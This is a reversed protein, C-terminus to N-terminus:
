FLVYSNLKRNRYDKINLWVSFSLALVLGSVTIIDSQQATLEIQIVRQILYQTYSAPLGSEGLKYLINFHWETLPCYGITYFLGLIFWSGATLLLTILNLRRTAKWIWGVLNFIILTTHFITFFWDLIHYILNM